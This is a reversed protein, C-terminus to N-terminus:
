DDALLDLAHSVFLQLGEWLDFVARGLRQSSHSEMVVWVLSGHRPTCFALVGGELLDM